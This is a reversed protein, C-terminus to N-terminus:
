VLLQGQGVRGWHGVWLGRLAVVVQTTNLPLRSWQGAMKFQPSVVNYTVSEKTDRSNDEKPDMHVSCPLSAIALDFRRPGQNEHTTRTVEM